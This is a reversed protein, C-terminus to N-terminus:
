GSATLHAALRALAPRDPKGLSTVPLGDVRFIRRPRYRSDLHTRCWQAVAEVTAPGTFLALLLDGWTDDGVATVAVQEIGPCPQMLSEVAEPDIKYGGSNLRTDARGCLHLKGQGDLYGIDTSTFHGDEMGTDANTGCYGQMLMPGAIRIRGPGSVPQGQDDVIALTCGAVPRGVLGPTWDAQVRCLAIHSATESMGWTISIPWGRALARHALAASLPGGGVLVCRLSAPLSAGAQADLLKALMAPVLSLHTVAQQQLQAFIHTADFDEEILMAAGAHLCRLLIAFGGIHHMPLCNLWLDRHTLGTCAQSAVVSARLSHGSHRTIRPGGSSGSTAILLQVRDGPLPMPPCDAPTQGTAAPQLTFCRRGAHNSAIDSVVQTIGCAELCPQIAIRAPELPLLPCGLHMAALAAQTLSQKHICVAALPEGPNLGAQLLRAALAQTEHYLTRYDLRSDATVLALRPPNHRRAREFWGFLPQESPM